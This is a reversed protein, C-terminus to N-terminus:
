RGHRRCLTKAALKTPHPLFCRRGDIPPHLQPRQAAPQASCTSNSEPTSEQRSPVSPRLLSVTPLSPPPSSNSSKTPPHARGSLQTSPTPVSALLANHPHPSTHWSTAARSAARCHYPAHPSGARRVGTQRFFFIRTTTQSANRTCHHISRPYLWRAPIAALPYVLAHATSACLLGSPDRQRPPCRHPCCVM